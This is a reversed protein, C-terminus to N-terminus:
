LVAQAVTNLFNKIERKRISVIKPYDDLFSAGIFDGRQKAYYIEKIGQAIAFSSMKESPLIVCNNGRKILIPSKAEIESTTLLPRGCCLAELPISPTHIAIPFNNELFAITDCGRIFAPIKWHPIFKQISVCDAIQLQQVKEMWIETHDWLAHLRCPFKELKLLRMAELMELTGKCRGTKGYIGITFIEQDTEFLPPYFLYEPLLVTSPYFLQKEDLGINKFFDSM